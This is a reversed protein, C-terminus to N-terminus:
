VMQVSLLSAAFYEGIVDFWIAYNSTFIYNGLRFFTNFDPAFQVLNVGMLIYNACNPM